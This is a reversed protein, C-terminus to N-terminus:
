LIDFKLIKDGMKFFPCKYIDLISKRFCKQSDFITSKVCKVGKCM